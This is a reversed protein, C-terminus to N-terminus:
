VETRQCSSENLIHSLIFVGGERMFFFGTYKRQLFVHIFGPLVLFCLSRCSHAASPERGSKRLDCHISDRKTYTSTAVNRPIDCKRKKEIFKSLVRLRMIILCFMLYQLRIKFCMDVSQQGHAVPSLHRILHM